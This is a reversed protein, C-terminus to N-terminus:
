PTDPKRGYTIHLNFLAHISTNRLDERVGALLVQCEDGTWDLAVNFLRVTFAEVGQLVQLLNLAGIAKQKEDKPWRGVPLPFLESTVDTFGAERIWGELKPGPQPDRGVKKSAELFLAVWKAVNSEPHLSKDKSYWHLDFDWIEIWGNVAAEMVWIGSGTGLDLIEQPDEKIPARVLHHGTAMMMVEFTMDWRDVEQEDVPFLYERRGYTTYRRGSEVRYDLVSATLSATYNSADYGIASDNEDDDEAVQIASQDEALLGEDTTPSSM